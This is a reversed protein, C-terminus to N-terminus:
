RIKIKKSKLYKKLQTISFLSLKSNESKNKLFDYNGEKEYNYKYNKNNVENYHFCSSISVANVKKYSLVDYVDKPSGVGGHYILPVNINNYIKELLEINMGEGYGENNVCTISLEGAGRDQVEKVWDFFNKSCYASTAFLTRSKM